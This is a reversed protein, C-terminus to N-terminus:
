GAVSTKPPPGSFLEQGAPSTVTVKTATEDFKGVLYALQGAVGVAILNRDYDVVFAYETGQKDVSQIGLTMAMAGDARDQEAGRKAIFAVIQSRLDMTAASTPPPTSEGEARQSCGTVGFGLLLVLAAVAPRLRM